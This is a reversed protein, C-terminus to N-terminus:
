LLRQLDSRVYETEDFSFTWEGRKDCFEVKYKECGFDSVSIEVVKAKVENKVIVLDGVRIKMHESLDGTQLANLADLIEPCDLSKEGIGALHKLIHISLIGIRAYIAEIERHVNELKL